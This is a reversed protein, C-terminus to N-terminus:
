PRRLSTASNQQVRSTATEAVATFYKLQHLEM